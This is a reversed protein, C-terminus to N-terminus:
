LDVALRVAWRFGNTNSEGGRYFIRCGEDNEEQWAVFSALEL